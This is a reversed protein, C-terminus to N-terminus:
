RDSPRDSAGAHGDNANLFAMAEECLGADAMESFSHAVGPVLQLPFATDLGHTRAAARMATTWRKAREVRDHGQRRDLKPNRRLSEDRAIDELGVAVLTPVRLARALDFRVGPLSGTAGLGHPYRRHPDPLTYWGPAAIVASAVREPHAFAYRHVLQGGGSFGFMWQRSSALGFRRRVAAIARDLALDARPGRGLRGLRQYDPYDHEGFRPALLIAGRRATYPAFARVIEDVNRSIGHVCVLLPATRDLRSPHAIQYALDPAGPCLGEEIRVCDTAISEQDM